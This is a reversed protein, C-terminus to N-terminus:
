FAVNLLEEHRRCEALEPRSRGAWIPEGIGRIRSGGRAHQEVFDQWVPIIRAPNAGVELMDAFAVRDADAGLARRMATIKPADLVVLIAEEAAVGDRVFPITGAMFEKPSVYFFAEHRYRGHCGHPEVSETMRQDSFTM